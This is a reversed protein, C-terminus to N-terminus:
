AVEIFPSSQQGDYVLLPPVARARVSFYQSYASVFRAHVRRTHAKEADNSHRHMFVAEVSSPMHATWTSADLVIESYRNQLYGYEQSPTNFKQPLAAVSSYRRNQEQLMNLTENPGWACGFWWRQGSSCWPECGSESNVSHGDRPYSCLVRVAGPSVM